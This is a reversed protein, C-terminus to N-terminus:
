QRGELGDEIMLIEQTEEPEIKRLSKKDKKKRKKDTRDSGIQTEVTKVSDTETQCDVKEM